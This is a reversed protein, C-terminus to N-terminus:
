PLPRSTPFSPAPSPAPKPSFRQALWYGVGIGIFSCILDGGDLTRYPSFGQILEEMVTFLGFLMPFLPLTLRLPSAKGPFRGLVFSFHRYRCLCHGLYSPIFYLLLHGVKDYKPFQSLWVLPLHNNYAAWLTVVFFTAYFAAAVIITKSVAKARLNARSDDASDDKPNLASQSGSSKATPKM